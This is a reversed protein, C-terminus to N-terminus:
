WEGPTFGPPTEALIVSEGKLELVYLGASYAYEKVEPDVVGGAIAGMLVKQSMDVHMPPHRRILSLRRIHRDVDDKNGFQNKVEVAMLYKSNSLIIDVDTLVRKGDRISVRRFAQDFGYNYIDFKEWLKAAILTEILRGINDGLDGVIKEVRRLLRENEQFKRDTERFKRDTEQFMTWVKEFTLGQPNGEIQVDSM